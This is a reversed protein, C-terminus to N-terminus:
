IANRRFLQIGNLQHNGDPFRNLPEAETQGDASNNEVENREIFFASGPITTAIIEVRKRRRPLKAAAAQAIASQEKCINKREWENTELTNNSDTSTRVLNQQSLIFTPVFSQFLSFVGLQAFISPALVLM